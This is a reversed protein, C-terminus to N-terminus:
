LANHAHTGARYPVTGVTMSTGEWTRRCDPDPSTAAPSCSSRPAAPPATLWGWRWSCSPRAPSRLDPPPWTLWVRSERVQGGHLARVLSKHNQRSNTKKKKLLNEADESFLSYSTLRWDSTIKSPTKKRGTDKPVNTCVLLLLAVCKARKLHATLKM